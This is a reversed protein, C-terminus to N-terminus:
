VYKDISNLKNKNNKINEEIWFPLKYELTKFGHKTEVIKKKKTGKGRYDINKISLKLHNDNKDVDLIEVYITENENAFKQPDKVFKDSVESIHVLGSYKNDVKVFIGYKTVGTVNAKIIRGKTYEAM